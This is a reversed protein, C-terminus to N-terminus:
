RRRNMISSRRSGRSAVPCTDLVASFAKFTRSSRKGVDGAFLWRSLRRTEAKGTVACRIAGQFCVLQHSSESSAAAEPFVKIGMRVAVDIVLVADHCLVGSIM